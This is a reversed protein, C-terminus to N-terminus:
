EQQLYNVLTPILQKKRSVVGKLVIKESDLPLEYAELIANRAAADSCIVESTEEMINTLVLFVMDLRQKEKATKLYPEVKVKAQELELQNMSNVQGMGFIYDNANFLKYDQFCIEEASKNQLASGANFMEKALFDMDIDAIEALREAVAKDVDTCTPSRFLLTDSIIAACLLSAMTKDIPVGNEMYMQYVITATCGVPQNRFYVPNVTELSGLKHHDIIELIDAEEIGPVAQSIENHDVLIVQKKHSTLLRRRSIFGCFKGQKDTIPFDRYKKKTMDERIDDVFDTLRFTEINGKTMFYSVPASQNILRAVTFTDYPTQIMVVKREEALKKITKSITAGQCVVLCRAGMEIACFQTEYRNGCIVLDEEEIYSEMLEPSLVSIVVKGKEFYDDENGVVLTGNLTDVINKYQTKAIALTDSEHVEMYSKAIDGTSIVGELKEDRLIPLTKTHVKKMLDWANKISAGGDVGPVANINMDQVQLRVNDLYGPVDVGFRELVYKTEGNIDGARKELYLDGTLIRKLNAYAIASCISDTDPNRHGVVYIKKTKKEGM